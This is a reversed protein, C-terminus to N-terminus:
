IPIAPLPGRWQIYERGKETIGILGADNIQILHHAQLVDLIIKRENANPILPIWISDYFGYTSSQKLEGIWDLVLQTKRVLFYNLYRYEWLYSTAIHSKILHTIEREQQLNLGIPLADEVKLDNTPIPTDSKEIFPQPTNVEAGGPLKIFAVRNILNRLEQRFLWFFTIATISLLVPATLLIKLYELIIQHIEMQTYPPQTLGM